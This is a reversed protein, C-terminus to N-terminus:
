GFSVERPTGTEVAEPAASLRQAILRAVYRPNLIVYRRWLRKPELGLRWLWELGYRQMWAPPEEAPRRPLRLGCRRGAAADVLLRACRTRSSRRAPAASASWCSGPARRWSGTPSRRAEGGPQVARFKSPEAGAIKLGPFMPM